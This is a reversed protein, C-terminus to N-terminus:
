QWSLKHKLVEQKTRTKKLFKIYKRRPTVFGPWDTYGLEYLDDILSVAGAYGIGCAKSVEMPTFAKKKEIFRIANDIEGDTQYVHKKIIEVCSQYNM